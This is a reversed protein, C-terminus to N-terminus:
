RSIRITKGNTCECITWFMGSCAEDFGDFSCAQRCDIRQQLNATTTCGSMFFIWALVVAIFGMFIIANYANKNM